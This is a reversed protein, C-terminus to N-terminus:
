HLIKDKFKVIDYVRYLVYALPFPLTEFVKQRRKKDYYPEGEKLIPLYEKYMRKSNQYGCRSINEIQFTIMGSFVKRLYLRTLENQIPCKKFFHVCSANVTTHDAIHQKLKEQSISQGPRDVRYYYIPYENVVFNKSIAIPALWLVVDDYYCGEAFLPLYPKLLDTKYTCNHFITLNPRNGAKIFDFSDTKYVKGYEINSVSLQNTKGTNEHYYVLPNIILDIDSSGILYMLKSLNEKDLWDDSDLFRVYKGNANSLGTNFASGHGGNEKDIVRFTQPYKKEYEKAIIASHDPTGDNVVIVELQDMLEDSVILSDLCKRIYQEVKYVPVVISLLKNM